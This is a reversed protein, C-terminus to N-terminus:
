SNRGCRSMTKTKIKWRLALQSHASLGRSEPPGSMMLTPYWWRNIADQVMSRQQPAGRPLRLLPLRVGAQHPLVGRLLYTKMARAYPGYSSQAAMTQNIVAATDVLWGIVGV